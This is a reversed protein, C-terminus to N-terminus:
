LDYSKPVLLQWSDEPAPAVTKRLKIKKQCVIFKVSREPYDVETKLIVETM